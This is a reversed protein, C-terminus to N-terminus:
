SGQTTDKHQHVRVRDTHFIACVWRPLSGFLVQTHPFSAFGCLLLIQSDFPLYTNPSPIMALPHCIPLLSAQHPQHFVHASLLESFSDAAVNTIVELGAFMDSHTNRSNQGQIGALGVLGALGALGAEQRATGIKSLHM